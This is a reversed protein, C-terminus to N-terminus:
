EKRRGESCYEKSKIERHWIRCFGITAYQEDKTWYRCDKCRVVEVADASPLDKLQDWVKAVNKDGTVSGVADAVEIAAQRSILDDMRNVGEMARTIADM